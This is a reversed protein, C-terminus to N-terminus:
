YRFELGTQISRPLGPLIGRTRDAVYLRGTVNKVAMFFTSRLREVPLNVSANYITWAPLLGRQGDASPTVSNLDDGFQAATHVAEIFVEVGRPHLYGTGITWTTEPAYPSRNGSVEVASFAPISSFRRGSFSAEWLSTFAVTVYANHATGFLAASDARGGFELGEHLTAGANTLTAGAGGAVSAPIVQNEYDMRFLTTELTLGPRLTSRFGIEANWSLEPDLDVLGGTNTIIDETRPPAFGRHIGGFVTTNATTYSLGLGPIFQTLDTEGRAGAGANALRNTREYSIREVRLGPTVTWRGAGIRNQIFASHAVNDRANNEVTRGNRADPRDGNIQLREQAEVHARIGADIESELGFLSTTWELRSTVGATRYERLRGENGCTTLLNSMGGCVPDASDNPRQGSNSSQRWWHRKFFAGYASSNLAVREGVGNHAVSAGYRDGFFFDNRFPNQRPNQEYEDQRLGSYTVNSDEGYYNARVTLSQKDSLTHVLKLNVDDLESSTNQRAGEGQKRMLDVLVGTKGWTGGFSVHGRLFADTGGAVSVALEPSAPPAPTLYNIVGGVTAPGFAIQGSGKIIEVREFREIPPHYYSANDGYPAYTLPLGDELLLVKSSRTPNTGRLGINPRLGLGEEDRVTVGPAKRLAETTSSVRATLLLSPDLVTVAGPIKEPADAIRAAVVTISAAFPAPAPETAPPVEDTGANVALALAGTIFLVATSPRMTSGKANLDPRLLM